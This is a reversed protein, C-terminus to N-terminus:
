GFLIFIMIIGIVIPQHILYILLSHQGIFRVSSIPIKKSLDPLNFKRTGNPYLVKGIYVGLLLVGLWPFLPYYDLTYFVDPRIGLWLLWPYGVTIQRFLLGLILIILGLPLAIQHRKIFPYALIISLGICHLVGFYIAGHALYLWSVLTIILGIGFIKVGRLLFKRHKERTDLNQEVASYSLTLSIGVIFIFLGGVLYPFVGSLSYYIDFSAVNLFALDFLIHFFIMFIIALGRFTDIEWLRHKTTSEELVVDSINVDNFFTIRKL